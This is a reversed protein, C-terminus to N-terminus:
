SAHCPARGIDQGSAVKWAGAPDSHYEYNAVIYRQWGTDPRDDSVVSKGGANILDVDGVDFCVDVQVTPVKGVSPDSNDLNVAQVELVSVKTEGTQHLEDNRERKFLNQQTGLETGIAVTKLLDLPQKPDKRLQNRVDYYRRVAEAAGKSAIESASTPSASPSPATSTITPTSTPEPDSGSDACSTVAALLLAATAVGRARRITM